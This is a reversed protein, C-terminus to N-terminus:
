NEEPEEEGFEDFDMAALAEQEAKAKAMEEKMRQKYKKLFKSGLLIMGIGAVTFIGMVVWPLVPSEALVADRDAFLKYVTYLMITGAVIYINARLYEKDFM